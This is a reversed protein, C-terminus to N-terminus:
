KEKKYLIWLVHSITKWQVAPNFYQLKCMFYLTELLHEIFSLNQSLEWFEYMFKVLLWGSTNLWFINKSIKCFECFFMKAPIEKKIVNCTPFRFSDFLVSVTRWLHGKFFLTRLFKAFNVPFCRHWDIKRLFREAFSATNNSRKDLVGYTANKFRLTDQKIKIQWCKALTYTYFANIRM